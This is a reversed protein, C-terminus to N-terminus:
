RYIRCFEDVNTEINHNNYNLYNNLFQHNQHKNYFKGKNLYLTLSKEFNDYNDYHYTRTSIINKGINTFNSKDYLFIDAYTLNM